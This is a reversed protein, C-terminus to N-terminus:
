QSTAGSFPYLDGRSMGVNTTIDSIPAALLLLFNTSEEPIHRTTFTSLHRGTPPFYQTWFVSLTPAGTTNLLLLCGKNWVVLRWMVSPWLGNQESYAMQQNKASPIKLRFPKSRTVQSAIAVASQCVLGFCNARNRGIISASSLTPEDALEMLNKIPWFSVFSWYRTISTRNM